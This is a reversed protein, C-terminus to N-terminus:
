VRLSHFANNAFGKAVYLIMTDRSELQNYSIKNTDRLSIM